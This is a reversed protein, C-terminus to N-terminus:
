EIRSIYQAFYNSDELEILYTFYLGEDYEFYFGDNVIIMTNLLEEIIEYIDSSHIILIHIITDNTAIFNIFLEDNVVLTDNSQYVISDYYNAPTDIREGIFEMQAKSNFSLLLFLIILNKM